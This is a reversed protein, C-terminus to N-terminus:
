SRPRRGSKRGFGLAALGAGLLALSAPEPVPAFDFDVSGELQGEIGGVPGLVNPFFVVDLQYTSGGPLLLSNFGEHHGPVGVDGLSEFQVGDRRLWVVQLGFPNAGLYDFSWGYSLWTDSVADYTVVGRNAGPVNQGLYGDGPQNNGDYALAFGLSASEAGLSGFSLAASATAGTLPGVVSVSASTGGANSATVTEVGDYRIEMGVFVQTGIIGAKATAPAVVFTLAAIGLGLKQRM